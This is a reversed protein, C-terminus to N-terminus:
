NTLLVATDEAETVLADGMGFVRCHTDGCKRGSSLVSEFSMRGSRGALGWESWCHHVTLM